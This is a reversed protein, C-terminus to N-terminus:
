NSIAHCRLDSLAASALRAMVEAWAQQDQESTQRKMQYASYVVGMVFIEFHLPHMRGHDEMTRWALLMAEMATLTKPIHVNFHATFAKGWHLSALEEDMLSINNDSSIVLGGLLFEYILSAHQASIIFGLSAGGGPQIRSVDRSKQPGVIGCVSFSVWVCLLLLTKVCM